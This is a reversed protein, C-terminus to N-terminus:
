EVPYGIWHSLLLSLKNIPNQPREEEQQQQFFKDINWEEM